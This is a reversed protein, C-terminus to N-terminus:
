VQNVGCLFGVVDVGDAYDWLAPSHSEGPAIVNSLEKSISVVCQIRDANLKLMNEVHAIDSYYEYSVVSVPASYNEDEILLLNETDIHDTSNVLYIAKNYEYNNFYKSHESISSYKRIAKILKDFDYGVPLYLHSVNRCGLGFYMFIDAAIGELENETEQGTLVAIGNRNKRIINPYKGFYYDFYRSSNNSGTAIIADPKELKGDTFQIYEAFAPEIDILISVIAPLLRNDDSSLKAYLKNGTILVSLMDHFGVMPINGAMVVGVTKSKDSKALCEMYPTLWKSLNEKSISKAIETLMKRVNVETFWGNYHTADIIETHLKQLNDTNFNEDKGAISVKMLRVGLEAFAAIRNDITLM